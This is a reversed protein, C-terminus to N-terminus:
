KKSRYIYYYLHKNIFVESQIIGSKHMELCVTSDEGHNIDPYTFAKMISSRMPCLHGPPRYYVNRGKIKEQYYESGLRFFFEEQPAKDPMMYGKFTVCDPRSELAEMVDEIYTESVVDDDDIFVGYETTLNNVLINRKAGISLERDDKFQVIQVNHRECQSGLSSILRDFLVEREVLTPILVTLLPKDCLSDM